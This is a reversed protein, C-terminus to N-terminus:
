VGLHIGYAILGLAVLGMLWAGFPQQIAPLAGETTRVKSPDYTKAAQIFFYGIVVSVVGKSTLGFQAIRTSFREEKESMEHLKLKRRNLLLQGFPKEVGQPKDM